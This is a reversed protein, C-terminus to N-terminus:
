CVYGHCNARKRIAPFRFNVCAAIVIHLVSVLAALSSFPEWPFVMSETVRIIHIVAEHRVWGIGLINPLRSIGCAPSHWHGVAVDRLFIESEDRHVSLALGSTEAVSAVVSFTTDSVLCALIRPRGSLSVTGLTGPPALVVSPLLQTQFQVCALTMSSSLRSCSRGYSKHKFCLLTHTSNNFIIRLKARTFISHVMCRCIGMM